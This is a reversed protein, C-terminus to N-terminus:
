YVPQQNYMKYLWLCAWLLSIHTAISIRRSQWLYKKIWTFHSCVVSNNTLKTYALSYYFVTHWYDADTKKV